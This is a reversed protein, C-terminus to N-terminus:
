KVGLFKNILNRYNGELFAKLYADLFNVMGRRLLYGEDITKQISRFTKALDSNPDNDQDQKFQETLVQQTFGNAKLFHFMTIQNITTEYKIKDCFIDEILPLQMIEPSTANRSPFIILQKTIFDKENKNLARWELKDKKADKYKKYHCNLIDMDNKCHPCKKKIDKPEVGFIRKSCKDCKFEDIAVFEDGRPLKLNRIIIDSIIAGGVIAFVSWILWFQLNTDKVYFYFILILIGAIEMILNTGKSKYIGIRTLFKDISTLIANM